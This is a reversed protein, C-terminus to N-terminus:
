LEETKRNDVDPLVYLITILTYIIIKGLLSNRRIKAM